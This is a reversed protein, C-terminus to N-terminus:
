KTHFDEVIDVLTDCDYEIFMQVRGKFGKEWSISFHLAPRDKDPPNLQTGLGFPPVPDMVFTTYKTSGNPIFSTNNLAFVIDDYTKISEAAASFCTAIGHGENLATIMLKMSKFEIGKKNAWQTKFLTFLEGSKFFGSSGDPRMNVVLRLGKFKRPVNSSSSPTDVLPTPVPALQVNQSTDSSMHTLSGSLTYRESSSFLQWNVKM